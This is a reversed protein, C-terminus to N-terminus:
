HFGLQSLQQEQQQQTVLQRSHAKVTIDKVIARNKSIALFGAPHGQMGLGIHDLCPIRLPLVAANGPQTQGRFIGPPPSLQSNAFILM